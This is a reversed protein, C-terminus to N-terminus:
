TRGGRNLRRPPQAFCAACPTSLFFDDGTHGIEDLLQSLERRLRPRDLPTTRACSPCYAELRRRARRLTYAIHGSTLRQRDLVGKAHMEAMVRYISALVLDGKLELYIDTPLTPHAQVRVWDVIQVRIPTPKLGAAILLAPVDLPPEGSNRHTM